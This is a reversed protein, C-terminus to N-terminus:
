LFIYEESKIITIVGHSVIWLLMFLGVLLSCFQNQSNIYETSSTESFSKIRTIVLVECIYVAPLIPWLKKWFKASFSVARAICIRRSQQDIITFCFQQLLVVYDNVYFKNVGLMDMLCVFYLNERNHYIVGLLDISIPNFSVRNWKLWM